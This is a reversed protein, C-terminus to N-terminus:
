LSQVNRTTNTLWKDNLRLVQEIVDRVCGEGGKRDSLYRAIAKVEPAADAPCTPMGAKQMVAMDPIDDGMYLVEEPKLDYKFCFDMFDDVKDHSGLYIDTVGLSNFRPRMSDGRGGSIVAVPFGLKVALQVAYGDKVNQTRLMEGSPHIFVSGDTFVGDIDFAFAKVGRLDQKFNAMQFTSNKQASLYSNYHLFYSTFFLSKLLM